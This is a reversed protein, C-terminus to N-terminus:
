CRPWRWSPWFGIGPLGNIVSQQIPYAYLYVGYSCDNAIAWRPSPRRLGLHIALLPVVLLALPARAATAELLLYAALLPVMAEARLWRRGHHALTAGAFFYAMFKPVHRLDNGWVIVPEGPTWAVAAVLSAVLLSPALWALRQRAVIASAALALYALVEFPLTWLSGNVAYPHLAQEFVGPLAFRPAFVLNDGLYRWTDPHGVYQVLPLMTWLAGVVFVCFLLNVALGPVIRLARKALFRGAHPDHLLSQSVLFGSLAFFIGVGLGGLSTGL